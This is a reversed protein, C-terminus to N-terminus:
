KSLEGILFKPLFGRAKESHSGSGNPRNNFIETADKGCGNLIAEKGPHFGSEIYPTVDYVKGEIALWCSDKNGHEAVQTLTYSILKNTDTTTPQPMPQPYLMTYGYYGGVVFFLVGMAILLKKM